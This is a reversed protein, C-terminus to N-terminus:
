YESPRKYFGTINLTSDFMQFLFQLKIGVIKFSMECKSFRIGLRAAFLIGPAFAQLAQFKRLTLGRRTRVRLETAHKKIEIAQTEIETEAVACVSFDCLL